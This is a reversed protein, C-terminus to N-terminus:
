FYVIADVRVRDFFVEDWSLDRCGLGREGVSTFCVEEIYGEKGASSLLPSVSVRFKLSIDSIM